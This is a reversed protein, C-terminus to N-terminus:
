DDGFPYVVSKIIGDKYDAQLAFAEPTGELGFRHTMMAGLDVQGRRVMQIARAYVHGMRRSLKISLGKRRVLSANLTFQDGEPIGVLVMRGGIRVAEAAHQPGLPSTTAELVVDVGRGDTLAKAEEWSSVAADAGLKLALERRYELPEIVTMHGAGCWRAVQMILLGIPGAGLVAVSEMPKLRALDLAHIAVGLPELLAATAADFGEPLAVLEDPRATIYEALAGQYPPVGAFRVNPCLNPYGAACWECAGCSRNPDVAVLTGPALPGGEIVEAAFEHGLIFPQSAKTSGIAGELYHHLDSGCVGVARVRLLVEDPAREPRPAREVRLDRVGHLLAARMTKDKLANDKTGPM